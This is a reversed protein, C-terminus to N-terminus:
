FKVILEDCCIETVIFEVVSAENVVRSLPNHHHKVFYAGREAKYASACCVPETVKTFSRFVARKQSGTTM